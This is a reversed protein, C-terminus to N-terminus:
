VFLANNAGRENGYCLGKKINVCNENCDGKADKADETTWILNHARVLCCEGHVSVMLNGVM